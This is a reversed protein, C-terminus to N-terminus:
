AFTFLDVYGDLTLVMFRTPTLRLVLNWNAFTFIPKISKKCSYIGSLLSIGSISSSVFVFQFKCFWILQMGASATTSDTDTSCWNILIPMVVPPSLSKAKKALNVEVGSAPLIAESHRNRNIKQSTETHSQHRQRPDFPYQAQGSDGRWLLLQVAPTRIPQEAKEKHLFQHPEDHPFYRGTEAICPPSVESVEPPLRFSTLTCIHHPKM